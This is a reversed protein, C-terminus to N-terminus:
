SVGHARGPIRVRGSFVRGSVYTHYRCRVGAIFPPLHSPLPSRPSVPKRYFIAGQEWIKQACHRLVCVSVYICPSGHWGDDQFQISCLSENWLWTLTRLIDTFTHHHWLIAWLCTVGHWFKSYWRDYICLYICFIIDAVYHANYLFKMLFIKASFFLM